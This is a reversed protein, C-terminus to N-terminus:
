LDNQEEDVHNAIHHRQACQISATTNSGTKQELQAVNRHVTARDSCFMQLVADRFLKMRAFFVIPNVLSNVLVFFEVWLTSLFLHTTSTLFGWHALCKQILMPFYCTFFAAMVIFTLVTKDHEKKRRFHGDDFGRPVVQNTLEKRQKKIVNWIKLNLLASLSYLAVNCFFILVNVIPFYFTVLVFAINIIFILLSAMLSRRCTAKELYAFPHCIAAYRDATVLVVHQFSVRVFYHSTVMALDNTFKFEINSLCLGLKSMWIPQVILGLLFDTLSLGGLLINSPTRLSKKKLFAIIFIINTFITLAAVICDIILVIRVNISITQSHTCITEPKNMNDVVRVSHNTSDFDVSAIM